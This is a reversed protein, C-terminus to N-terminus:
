RDIYTFRRQLYFQQFTVPVDDDIVQINMEVCRELWVDSGSISINRYHVSQKCDDTQVFLTPYLSCNLPTNASYLTENGDFIKEEHTHGALVVDVGYQECLTVFAERNRALVNWMIGNTDRANIAPHHMLVIKISSNRKELHSEFWEIDNDYLGDGDINELWNYLKEYYSPGSNMFFLSVDQYQVIYRDVSYIFRLYNTLNRNYCYDHNGPTTFVPISYEADAYLSDNKEYLCSTFARCNLAGSIKSGGWETLDGTIVIFAPKKEFSCVHDLLSRLRKKSVENWDFIKNMVHTDTIHIFYFDNNLTGATREENSDPLQKKTTGQVTIGSLILLFLIIVISCRLKLKKL